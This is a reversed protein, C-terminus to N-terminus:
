NVVEQVGVLGLGLPADHFLAGVVLLKLAATEVVGVGTELLLLALM